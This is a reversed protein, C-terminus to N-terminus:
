CRRTSQGPSMSRLSSKGRLKSRGSSPHGKKRSVFRGRVLLEELTLGEMNKQRMEESLSTAVVDDIKLTANNRGIAM